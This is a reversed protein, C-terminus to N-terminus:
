HNVSDESPKKASLEKEIKGKRWQMIKWALLAGVPMLVLLVWFPVPMGWLWTEKQHLIEEERGSFVVFLHIAKLVYVGIIGAEVFELVKSIAANERTYKQTEKYLNIQENEILTISLNEVGKLMNQLSRLNIDLEEIDDKLSDIKENLKLIDSLSKGQEGSKEYLDEKKRYLYGIAERIFGQLIEIISVENIINGVSGRIDSAKSIAGSIIRQNIEIVSDMIDNQAIFLAKVVKELAKINSLFVTVKIFEEYEPSILLTGDEGVVFSSGESIRIIDHISGILQRIEARVDERQFDPRQGDGSYFGRSIIQIEKEHALRNGRYLVDIMRRQAASLLPLMLHSSDVMIDAIVRAMDDLSHKDQGGSTELLEMGYSVFGQALVRTGILERQIGGGTEPYELRASFVIQVDPVYERLEVYTYVPDLEFVMRDPEREILDTVFTDRSADSFGVRDKLAGLLITSFPIWEHVLIKTDRHLYTLSRGSM